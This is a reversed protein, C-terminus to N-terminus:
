YPYISRHNGKEYLAELLLFFTGTQPSESACILGNAPRLILRCVTGLLREAEIVTRIGVGSVRQVPRRLDSWHGQAAKQGDVAAQYRQSKGM